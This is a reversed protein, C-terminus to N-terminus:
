GFMNSIHICTPYKCIFTVSNYKIIKYKYCEILLDQLVRQYLIMCYITLM